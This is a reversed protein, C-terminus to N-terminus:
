YTYDALFKKFGEEDLIKFTGKMRYHSNGCLQACAIEMDRVQDPSELETDGAAKAKDFMAQKYDATTGKAQFWLPIEMGPIADHKVRMTPLSFGHIVDKTTLRVLIPRDVPVAFDNNTVIDDKGAEDKEDLGVPNSEEDVFRVDTKGFKGDPGPYHINWAFQQAVIRVEVVRERAAEDPGETLFSIDVREAWLPIALGFLLVVEIVAVLVEVYSSAHSKVGAHDATPNKGARFRFLTYVFFAGWGIFLIAMIVHVWFNLNDLPGGHTSLDPPMGMFSYSDDM